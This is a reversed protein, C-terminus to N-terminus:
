HHLSTYALWLFLPENDHVDMPPDCLLCFSRCYRRWALLVNMGYCILMCVPNIVAEWKYYNTHSCQDDIFNVVITMVTVELCPTMFNYGDTTNATCSQQSHPDMICVLSNM